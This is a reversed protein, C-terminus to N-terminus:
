NFLERPTTQLRVRLKRHSDINVNDRVLIVSESFWKDPVKFNLVTLWPSAISNGKYKVRTKEGSRRVFYWHGNDEWILRVVAKRSGRLAHTRMVRFFNIILVLGLTIIAILPLAVFVILAALAIAHIVFVFFLLSRSTYVDLQLPSAYKQSSMLSKRM